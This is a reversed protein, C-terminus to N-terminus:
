CHECIMRGQEVYPEESFELHRTGARPPGANGAGFQANTCCNTVGRGERKPPRPLYVPQYADGSLKETHRHRTTTAVRQTATSVQMGQEISTNRKIAGGGCKM